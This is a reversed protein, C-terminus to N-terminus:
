EKPVWEEGCSVVARRFEPTQREEFYKEIDQAVHPQVRLSFDRLSCLSEAAREAVEDTATKDISSMRVSFPGDQLSNSALALHFTM